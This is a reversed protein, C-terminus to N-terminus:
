EADLEDYAAFALKQAGKGVVKFRLMHGHTRFRSQGELTGTVIDFEIRDSRVRQQVHTALEAVAGVLAFVDRRLDGFTGDDRQWALTIAYVASLVVDDVIRFMAGPAQLAAEIHPLLHVQPDETVWDAMTMEHLLRRVCRAFDGGDVGGTAMGDGEWRATAM